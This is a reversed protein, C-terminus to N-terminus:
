LAGGTWSSIIMSVWFRMELDLIASGGPQANFVLISCRNISLSRESPCYRRTESDKQKQHSSMLNVELRICM